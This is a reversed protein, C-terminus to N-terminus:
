QHIVLRQISSRDVTSIRLSYVGNPLHPLTIKEKTTQMVMQQILQGHSTFVEILPQNNGMAHAVQLDFTGSNPNPLIQAEFDNETTTVFSPEMYEVLLKPHKSSDVHNSSCFLLVETPIESVLQLMFGFNDSSWMDQVMSTVDMNTYDQLSNLSPNTYIENIDTTVPQTNWTVTNEQWSEIIRNIIAQNNEGSHGNLTGTQGLAYLNLQAQTIIAGEPLGSLDFHILARNVNVGGNTGPITYAANQSATGYNNNATNFNDHFGIAADYDAILEVTTQSIIPSTLSCLAVMSILNKIRKTM